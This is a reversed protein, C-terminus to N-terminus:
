TTKIPIAGIFHREFEPLSSPQTMLSVSGAIVRITGDDNPQWNERLNTM